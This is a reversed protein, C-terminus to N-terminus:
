GPLRPAPQTAAAAAAAAEAAAGAARRSIKTKDVLDTYRKYEPDAKSLAGVAVMKKLQSKEDLYLMEVATRRMAVPKNFDFQVAITDTSFDVPVKSVKGEQAPHALEIEKLQGISQGQVVTFTEMVQQGLARSFVAVRVSGQAPFSGVLFFETVKPVFVPDSWDSYPTMLVPIAAHNPDTVTNEFALLPNLLKVRLRYRYVKMSELSNDHFWVLVSGKSTQDALAPVLTPEPPVIPEQVAVPAGPVQAGPPPVREGYPTGGVRAQGGRLPAEEMLNEEDYLNRQGPPRRAGPMGPRYGRQYPSGGPAAYERPPTYPSRGPVMGGPAVVPAAGPQAGAALEAAAKESVETKPLNVRWDVWGYGPWWIQWYEPELYYQQWGSTPDSVLRRLEDITTANTGDYAPMQPAAMPLGDQGTLPMTVQQVERPEGWRGDPLQEELEAVVGLAVPTFPLGVDRLKARWAEQLQTWPFVAVVHSTMVDSPNDMARDPLEPEAKVLPKGPRPIVDILDALSVKVDLPRDTIPEQFTGFFGWAQGPALAQTQLARIQGAYDPVPPLDPKFDEIRAQAARAGDLLAQDVKVPSVEAKGTGPEVSVSRPSSIVWHFLVFVFGLLCLGLLGKELHQEIISTQGPRAM